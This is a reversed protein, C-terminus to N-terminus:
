AAAFKRRLWVAPAILLAVVLTPPAPTHAAVGTQSRLQLIQDQQTPNTLVGLDALGSLWTGSNLYANYYGLEAGSLSPTYNPDMLHWIAEQFAASRAAAGAGGLDDRYEAWMSRLATATASSMVGAGDGLTSLSYTITGGNFGQTREICFTVLHNASLSGNGQPTYLIGGYATSGTNWNAQGASGSGPGIGEYTVSIPQDTIPAAAAVGTAVFGWVVGAAALAGKWLTHM